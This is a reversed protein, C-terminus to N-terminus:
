RVDNSSSKAATLGYGSPPSKPTASGRRQIVHSDHSGGSGFTEEFKNITDEMAKAEAM